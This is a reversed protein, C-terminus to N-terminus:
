RRFIRRAVWFIARVLGYVAGSLAAIYLILLPWLWWEVDYASLEVLDNIAFPIPIAAFALGTWHAAGRWTV